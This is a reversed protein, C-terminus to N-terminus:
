NDKGKQAYENMKERAIADLKRYRKLPGHCNM